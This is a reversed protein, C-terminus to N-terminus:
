MPVDPEVGAVIAYVIRECSRDGASRRRPIARKRIEHQYCEEPNTTRWRCPQSGCVCCSGHSTKHGMMNAGCRSCRFLGGGLVCPSSRSRRSTRALRKKSNMRRVEVIVKAEEQTIVALHGNDVVEWESSHRISGNKRQVDRLRAGATVSCRKPGSCPIGCQHRGAAAGAYPSVRSTASTACSTSPHVRTALQVLCRRGLM